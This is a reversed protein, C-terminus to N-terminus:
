ASFHLRAGGSRDCHLGLSPSVSRSENRRVYHAGLKRAFVGALVLLVAVGTLFMM